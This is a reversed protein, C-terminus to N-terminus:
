YMSVGRGDTHRTMNKSISLSTEGMLHHFLPGEEESLKKAQEDINFLHLEPHTNCVKNM